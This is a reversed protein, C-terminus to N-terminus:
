LGSTHTRPNMDFASAAIRQMVQARYEPDTKYRPDSQAVVQAEFSEFGKADGAALGANVGGAAPKGEMPPAISSAPEVEALQHALQVGVAFTAPDRLLSDIQDKQEDTANEQVANFVTQFAEEGGFANQVNEVHDGIEKVSVRVYDDIVLEPVGIAIMKQRDEESLEGTEAIQRAAADWDVGAKEALDQANAATEADEASEATNAPSDGPKPQEADGEPSASNKAKFAQEKGYSAWDMVGDKVYKDFSAQDIGLSEATAADAEGAIKDKADAITESFRVGQQAPAPATPTVDGADPKHHSM